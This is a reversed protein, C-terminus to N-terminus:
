ALFPRDLEDQPVFTGRSQGAGSWTVRIPRAAPLCRLAHAFAGFDWESGTFVHALWRHSNSVVLGGTVLKLGLKQLEDRATIAEPGNTLAMDIMAAVTPNGEGGEQGLLFALCNRGQQIPRLAPTAPTAFGVEQWIAAAAQRGFILRAERVKALRAMLDMPAPDEEPATLASPLPGDPLLAMAPSPLVPAAARQQERRWELFVQILMQRVAAANETRAFMCILLAQPENLWYERGPRGRGRPTKAATAVVEGANKPATGFIGEPTQAVTACVEGYSKLEGINRDILARIDYLKGFGLAEALRLDQVRPGDDLVRLDTPSLHVTM